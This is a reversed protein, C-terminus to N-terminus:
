AEPDCVLNCGTGLPAHVSCQWLGDTCVRGDGIENGCTEGEEDCALGCSAAWDDPCAEPCPPLTVGECDTATTTSGGTTAGGGTSGGTSTTWASDDTAAGCGILLATIAFLLATRSTTM